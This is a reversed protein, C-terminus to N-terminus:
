REDEGASGAMREYMTVIRTCDQPGYGSEVARRWCDVVAQALPTAIDLEAAFATFLSVDKLAGEAPFGFDFKGSLVHRPFKVSTASNRGSGADLASIAIDMPIGARRTLAVAEATAALAGLSLVNNALKVAQAQGVEAGIRLIQGGIVEFVPGCARVSEDAGSVLVTLSGERAGVEGGSVPADVFATGAAALRDAAKRTAAPGTTSTNIVIAPSRTTVSALRATVEALASPTPLSLLIYSTTAMLAAADQHIVIRPHDRFQATRARDPDVLHATWGHELFRWVMPTAMTGVGIFGLDRKM